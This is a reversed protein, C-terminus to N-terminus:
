CPDPYFPQEKILSPLSSPQQASHQYRQLLSQLPTKHINDLDVTSLSSPGSIFGFSRQLPILESSLDFDPNSFAHALLNVEAALRSGAFFLDLWPEVVSM